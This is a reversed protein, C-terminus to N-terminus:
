KEESERLERTLAKNVDIVDKVPQSAKPRAHKVFFDANKDLEIVANKQAPTMGCGISAAIFFVAIIILFIVRFYDHIKKM